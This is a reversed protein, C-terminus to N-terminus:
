CVEFPGGVSPALPLMALGPVFFVGMWKALLGAGPTLKQAVTDGKTLLLFLFLAMCGALQGPFRISRAQFFRRLAVEMLTLAVVGKLEPFSPVDPNKIVAKKAGGRSLTAVLPEARVRAPKGHIAASSSVSARRQTESTPVQKAAALCLALLIILSFLRM